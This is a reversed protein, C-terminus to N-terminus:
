LNVAETAPTLLEGFSGSGRSFVVRRAPFEAAVRQVQLSAHIGRSSQDGFGLANEVADIVGCGINPGVIV